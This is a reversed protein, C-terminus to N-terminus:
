RAAAAPESATAIRVDDFNVKGKCPVLGFFLAM